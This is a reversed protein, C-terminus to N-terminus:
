YHEAGGHPLMHIGKIADPCHWHSSDNTNVNVINFSALSTTIGISFTYKKLKAAISTTIQETNKKTSM